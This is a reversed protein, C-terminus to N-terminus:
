TLGVWKLKASSFAGEAKGFSHVNCMRLFNRDGGWLYHCFAKGVLM